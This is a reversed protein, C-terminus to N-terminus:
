EAGGGKHQEENLPRMGCCPCPVRPGESGEYIRVNPNRKCFHCGRVPGLHEFPDPAPAMPAPEEPDVRLPLAPPETFLPGMDAKGTRVQELVAPSVHFFKQQGRCPTFPLPETDKLMFGFPGGFWTSDSHRVCDYMYTKGVIGGMDIKDLPPPILAYHECLVDWAGLDPTKGAHILLWGKYDSPWMRNECDKGNLIAWAWPQKITLALM